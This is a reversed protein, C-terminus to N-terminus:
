DCRKAPVGAALAKVDDALAALTEPALRVHLWKGQRRATVLGAERLKKVHHSVLAESAGLAEALVCVCRERGDALMAVIALRREDALAKLKAADPASRGLGTPAAM